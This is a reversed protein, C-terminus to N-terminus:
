LETEWGCEELSQLSVWGKIEPRITTTHGCNLCWWRTIFEENNNLVSISYPANELECGACKVIPFIHQEDRAHIRDILSLHPTSLDRYM